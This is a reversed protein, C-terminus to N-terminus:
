NGSCSASAKKIDDCFLTDEAAMTAYFMRCAFSDGSIVNASYWVDASFTDCDAHCAKGDPWVAPCFKLAIECFGDCNTGCVGDGGPGAATCEGAPMALAAHAHSLRCGLTNGTADEIKGVPFAACAELCAGEDKYM